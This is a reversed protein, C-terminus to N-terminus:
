EQRGTSCEVVVLRPVLRLWACFGACDYPWVCGRLSVPAPGRRMTSGKQVVHDVETYSTSRGVARSSTLIVHLGRTHALLTAVFRQFRAWTHLSPM